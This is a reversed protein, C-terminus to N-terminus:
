FLSIRYNSPTQNHNSYKVDQMSRSDNKLNRFHNFLRPSQAISSFSIIKINRTFSFRLLNIKRRSSRRFPGFLYSCTVVCGNVIWNANLSNTEIGHRFSIFSIFHMSRRWIDDTTWGDHQTAHIESCSDILRRNCGFLMAVSVSKWRSIAYDVRAVILAHKRTWTMVSDFGSENSQSATFILICLASSSSSSGDLSRWVLSTVLLFHLRRFFLFRFFLVVFLFFVHFYSFSFFEDAAAAVAAAAFVVLRRIHASVRAHSVMKM